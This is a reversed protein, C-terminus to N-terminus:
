ELEQLRWELSEMNQDRLEDASFRPMLWPLHLNERAWKAPGFRKVGISKFLSM